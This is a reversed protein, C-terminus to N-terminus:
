KASAGVMDQAKVGYLKETLEEVPRHLVRALDKHIKPRPRKLGREYDCYTGQGIGVQKAVQTQTLGLNMRHFKLYTM